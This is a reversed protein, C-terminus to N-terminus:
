QRAVQFRLDAAGPLVHMQELFGGRVGRQAAPEIADDASVDMPGGIAVQMAHAVAIGAVPYLVARRQDFISITLQSQPLESVPSLRGRDVRRPEGSCSSRRAALSLALLALTLWDLAGGGGSSSASTGGTTGGTTGGGTGGTGGSSAAAVNITVLATNSIVVADSANFSFQDAGTYGAVPTYMVVAGNLMGLTGHMPQAVISYTLADGNDNSSQLTISKATDQTVAVTQLTATLYDPCRTGTWGMDYLACTTLDTHSGTRLSYRPEMLLDPTASSDWHSVSSSEDFTAPTYLKLHGGASLGATLRALNANVNPGNWVLAAANGGASQGIESQMRQAATMEPWFMSLSEEYAFQDFISLYATNNSTDTLGTGDAKVISIFGLGHGIEHLVVGLLDAVYSFGNNHGTLKHDFGYYFYSGGLCGATGNVTSNFTASIDHKNGQDHGSLADALAGPYFADSHPAGPFARFMWMPGASGLVGTTDGCTMPDFSAEIVITVPSTILQGWLQAAKNFVNLRAQGLTTANNGGIPTFPTTDNFGEGPGDMVVVSLTAAAVPGAALWGLAAVLILTRACRM